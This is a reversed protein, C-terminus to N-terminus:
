PFHQAIQRNQQQVVPQPVDDADPVRTTDAKLKTDENTQDHGGYNRLVFVALDFQNSSILDECEGKDLM